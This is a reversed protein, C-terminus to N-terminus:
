AWEQPFSHLLSLPLSPTLSPPLSPLFHKNWKYRTAIAFALAHGSSEAPSFPSRALRHAYGM